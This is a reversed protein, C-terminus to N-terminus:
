CANKVDFATASATGIATGVIGITGRLFRDHRVHPRIAYLALHPMWVVLSPLLTPVATPVLTPM